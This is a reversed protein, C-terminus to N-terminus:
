SQTELAALAEAADGQGPPRGERAATVAERQLYENVPTRVGTLRGLLVIEGNLGDAEISGASRKLSQWSSGGSRAMGAVPGPTLRHGRREKDEQASVVDLGAAQFCAEGESRARAALQGAEEGPDYLAQVANAVNMLLKRRKWAMIDPRPVSEFTSASFARAIDGADDDAGSPYRGIDLLGTVPFSSAIVTGPDLFTAPCMVCVGYVHAFLRLAQRENDLGNQCCVLRIDAPASLRLAELASPTDQTKVALCVVEDGAWVVERPDSVAEPRATMEGDPWLLRLGEQRIAQLHAGRAVVTVALGAEWLRAAM